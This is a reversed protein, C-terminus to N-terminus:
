YVRLIVVQLARLSGRRSSKKEPATINIQSSPIQFYKEEIEQAFTQKIKRNNNDHVAATLVLGDQNKPSHNSNTDGFLTM